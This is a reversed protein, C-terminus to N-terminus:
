GATQSKEVRKSVFAVQTQHELAERGVQVLEDFLVLELTEAQLKDADERLLQKVAETYQLLSSKDVTIQLRFVNQEFRSDVECVDVSVLNCDGCILTM